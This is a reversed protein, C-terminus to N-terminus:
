PAVDGAPNGLGGGQGAAGDLHDVVAQGVASPEILRTTAGCSNKSNYAAGGCTSCRAAAALTQTLVSCGPVDHNRSATSAQRRPRNVNSMLSWPTAASRLAPTATSRRRRPPTGDISAFGPACRLARDVHQEHAAEVIAAARRKGFQRRVQPPSAGIMRRTPTSRGISADVGCVTNPASFYRRSDEAFNSSLMWRSRGAACRHLWRGGATSRIPGRRRPSPAAAAHHDGFRRFTALRQDGARVEDLRADVLHRIGDLASNSSSPRRASM